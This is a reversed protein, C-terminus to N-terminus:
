NTGDDTGKLAKLKQDIAHMHAMPLHYTKILEKCWVALNKLQDNEKELREVEDLLQKLASRAQWADMKYRQKRKCEKGLNCPIAFCIHPNKAFCKDAKDGADLLAKIQEHTYTM